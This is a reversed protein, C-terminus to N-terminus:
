LVCVTTRMNVYASIDGEGERSEKENECLREVEERDRGKRMRVAGGGTREREAVNKLIKVQKDCM